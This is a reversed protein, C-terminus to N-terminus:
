QTDAHSVASSDSDLVIGQVKSGGCAGGVVPMPVLRARGCAIRMEIGDAVVVCNSRVDRLMGQKLISIKYRKRTM